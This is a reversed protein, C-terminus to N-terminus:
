GWLSPPIAKSEVELIVDGLKRKTGPNLEQKLLKMGKTEAYEPDFQIYVKDNETVIKATVDHYGQDKRLYIDAEDCSGLVIPRTGLLIERSETPSWRVVLRLSRSLIELLAIMMGICFGIIASGIIRGAIAVGTSAIVLFGVGGIAGGIAGGLLASKKSLNPVFFSMAGGTITGLIIWGILQGGTAIIPIGAVAGFILQGVSGGVVGAALSGLTAKTAESPSLLRRRLYRNQGAILALSIGIALIGTWGGIRLTGFILGYDGTSDSEVLQKSYIAKEANLFAQEFQGSSAFFVLNPDGTLQGLFQTDADGTAM